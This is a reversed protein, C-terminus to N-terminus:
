ASLVESKIAAIFSSWDSAPFVLAPGNQVKSDRIPVGSPYDDLMEVCSGGENGSYTSKRWGTLSSTDPIIHETM